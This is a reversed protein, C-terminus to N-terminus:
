GNDKEKRNLSDLSVKLNNILETKLENLRKDDLFRTMLRRELRLIIDRMTYCEHRIDRRLDEANEYKLKNM